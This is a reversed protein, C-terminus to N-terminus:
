RWYGEVLVWGGHRRVWRHAIWRAGPRPPVVWHGPVWVYANGDWRHYGMIWVYGPGPRIPRTEVIAAPPGIRVIVDACLIGASLLLGFTSGIVLKKLM